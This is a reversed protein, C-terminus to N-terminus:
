GAPYYDKVLLRGRYQGEGTMNVFVDHIFREVTSKGWDKVKVFEQRSVELFERAMSVEETANGYAISHMLDYRGTERIYPGFATSLIWELKTMNLVPHIIPICGLWSAIYALYTYPDYSVFYKHSLFFQVAGEIDEPLVDANADHNYVLSDKTHFLNMKRYTFCTRNTRAIRPHSSKDFIDGNTPNRLVMLLNSDPVPIAAGPAYTGFAYVWDYQHWSHTVESPSISGIPALIWRVTVRPAVKCSETPGEPFIVVTNNNNVHCDWGTKTLRDLWLTEVDFGARTLEDALEFLVTCGGCSLGDEVRNTATVVKFQPPSSVSTTKAEGSHQGGRSEIEQVVVADPNLLNLVLFTLFVTVAGRVLLSRSWVQKVHPM